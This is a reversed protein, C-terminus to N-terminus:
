TDLIAGIIYVAILAMFSFFFTIITAAAPAAFELRTIRDTAPSYHTRLYLLIRRLLSSYRKFMFSLFAALLPILLPLASMLMTIYFSIWIYKEGEYPLGWSLGVDFSFRGLVIDFAEITRSVIYGDGFRVDTLSPMHSAHVALSTIGTVVASVVLTILVGLPLFFISSRQPQVALKSLWQRALFVSIFFALFVSLFYYISVTVYTALSAWDATSPGGFVIAYMILGFALIFSIVLSRSVCKETIHNTDFVDSFTANAVKFIESTAGSSAQLYHTIIERTNENQTQQAFKIMAYVLGGAMLALLFVLPWSAKVISASHAIFFNVTTFLSMSLFQSFGTGTAPDTM